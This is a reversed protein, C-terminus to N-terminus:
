DSLHDGTQPPTTSRHTRSWVLYGLGLLALICIGCVTFWCWVLVYDLPRNLPFWGSALLIPYVTVLMLLYHIGIKKAM